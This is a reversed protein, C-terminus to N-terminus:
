GVRLRSLCKFWFSIPISSVSSTPSLRRTGTSRSRVGSEIAQDMTSQKLQINDLTDKTLTLTADPADVFKNAYNLVGNEVLLSYQKGIDIFDVNLKITKGLRYAIRGGPSGLVVRGYTGRAM